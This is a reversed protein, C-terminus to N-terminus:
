KGLQSRKLHCLDMFSGFHVPGGTKPSEAIVEAKPRAGALDLAKRMELKNWEKEM